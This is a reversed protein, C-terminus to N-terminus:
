KNAYEIFESITKGLWKLGMEIVAAREKSPTYNVTPLYDQIIIKYGDPYRKAGILDQCDLLKLFDQQTLIYVNDLRGSFRPLYAIHSAKSIPKGNPKNYAQYFAELAEAATPYPTETLRGTGSKGEITVGRKYILAAADHSAAGDVAGRLADRLMTQYEGGQAGCNNENKMYYAIMEDITKSPEFNPFEELFKKLYYGKPRKTM